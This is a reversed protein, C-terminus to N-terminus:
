ENSDEEVDESIVSSMEDTNDLQETTGSKLARYHNALYDSIVESIEDAHDVLMQLMAAEGKTSTYIGSNLRLEYTVTSKKELMPVQKGDIEITLSPLLNAYATLNSCGKGFQIQLPYPIFGAGLRSKHAEITTNAGYPREINGVGLVDEKRKLREKLKMFLRIDPYFKAAQGGASKYTPHWGSLDIRTQNIFIFVVNYKTKLANLQKLLRGLAQADAGVRDETGLRQNKDETIELYVDLSFATVSDIIIVKFKDLPLMQKILRETEKYGSIPAVYFKNNPNTRTCKYPMLGIGQLLDDKVSGEADIYMVDHGADCLNKAMHLLLTSKGTQSEGSLEILSGTELGGNLVLDLPIIGTPILEPELFTTMDKELTKLVDEFSKAM